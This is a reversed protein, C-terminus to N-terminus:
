KGEPSPENSINENKRDGMKKLVYYNDYEKHDHTGILKEESLAFGHKKLALIREKAEPIAKTAIMECDFWGFIPETILSLIEDIIDRKEYASALDLRLLGCNTFYDDAIRKFIEFTGIIESTKKDIISFRVFYGEKYSFIWFDFAQKMREPTTYYFDDGDCNDSNFLKVAEKDSYVKLLDACDEASVFRLKFRNSEIEPCSEFIDM